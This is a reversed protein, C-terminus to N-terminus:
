SAIVLSADFLSRQLLHGEEKHRELTRKSKELVLMLIHKATSVQLDVSPEKGM